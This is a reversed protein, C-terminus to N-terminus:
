SMASPRADDACSMSCDLHIKRFGAAVYEGVMVGAKQLATSSPLRQWCNPASIIAAWCWAITRCASPAPSHM